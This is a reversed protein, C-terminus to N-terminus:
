VIEAYYKNHTYYLITSCFKQIKILNCKNINGKYKHKFINLLGVETNKGSLYKRRNKERINNFTKNRPKIHTIWETNIKMHLTIVNNEMYITPTGASNIKQGM